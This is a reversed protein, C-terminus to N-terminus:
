SLSRVFKNIKNVAKEITKATRITKKLPSVARVRSKRDKKGWRKIIYDLSKDLFRKPEIGETVIKNFIRGTVISLAEQDKIGVKKNVWERLKSIDVDEGPPMGDEVFEAYPSDFTIYSYKGTKYQQINKSLGGTFNIDDTRLIKRCTKVIDDSIDDVLVDITHQNDTDFRLSM